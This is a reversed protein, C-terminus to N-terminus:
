YLGTASGSGGAAGGVGPSASDVDSGDIFTGSGSTSPATGPKFAEMIVNKTGPGALSGTEADIRVLLAGPPTRFPIAPKDELAEGMFAKFIPAAVSSGTEQGGWPQKGLPIPNDFGVFVGVALDPAFGVFWTDRSDNTTGTKGALPKGLERIRRGTGRQVVGELMSTVQYASIPDVLQPRNDPPVPVAQGTWEANRCDPCDRNDHRFVTRGDRDQVRDILTPTLKKGGNVLMAYATTINLLRTEGAGLAMSLQKPMDQMIGFDSVTKVVADMGVAQALRVTMLNRSREIGVRMPSPGYFKRSFNSPKWKKQGPGQDLVFPADLIMTAPTFGNELATLYVFPKIASGPQRTAQTARNFESDDFSWGGQMALVRGTHPDLAVIGGNVAPVQRLAYTGPPYPEPNGGDKDPEKFLVAEVLIVDGPAVVDAPKKIASGRAQDDLAKRAWRMEGLPLVGETGDALGLRVSKADMSLVVAPQWPDIDSPVSAEGLAAQWDGDIGIQVVPGRYGHRRDYAILGDRLVKRAIEQLQSDLTSRVSLGGENVRGIGFQDVLERRVEEVFYRAEVSLVDRPPVVTLPTAMATRALEDSIFNDKAMRGIVYNRRIVAEDYRYVPHYNRPGKALGALYAAEEITLDALSKDFYNLAAAAVGYSGYGLYIENLYLELIREKSLVREMRLALIAEKAKREISVENSLLFNKAVQQTITSAGVPRGGGRLKIQINTVVARALAIFDVGPHTFFNQDEASVFAQVVHRPISTIPVFVRNETAYEAILRGDGAHVRTATPPEYDVLQKYEPLGQGYHWFGYAVAAAGLFCVFVGIGLLGLLVRILRM